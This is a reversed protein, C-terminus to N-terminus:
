FLSNLKKHSLTPLEYISAKNQFAWYQEALLDYM